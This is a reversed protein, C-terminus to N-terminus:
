SIIYILFGIVTAIYVHALVPWWNRRRRSGVAERAHRPSLSEPAPEAREVVDLYLAEIDCALPSRPNVVLLAPRTHMPSDCVRYALAIGADDATEDVTTDPAPLYAVVITAVIAAAPVAHNSAM